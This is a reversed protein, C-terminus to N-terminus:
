RNIIDAYASELAKAEPERGSLRFAESLPVVIMKRWKEREIKLFGWFYPDIQSAPTKDLGAWAEGLWRIIEPYNGDMRLQSAVAYHVEPPLTGMWKFQPGWLTLTNAFAVVSPREPHFKAWALWSKWLGANGPWSRLLSEIKPLVQQASWQWLSPDPKWPADPGFDLVLSNNDIISSDFTFRADDALLIELSPDPMRTLLIAKRAAHAGQHEPYRELMHALRQLTSTGFGDLISALEEATPCKFGSCILKEGRLMAWKLKPDCGTQTRLIASAKADLISWQIERPGWYLLLRSMRLQEWKERWSPEGLLLMRFPEQKVPMPLDPLAPEKLADQVFKETLLRHELLYSLERIKGWGSGSWFHLDELAKRAESVRGLEWLLGVRKAAIITRSHCWAKWTEVSSFDWSNKSPLGDLFALAGEWDKEMSYTSLCALLITAPPGAEGALMEPLERVPNGAIARYSAWRAGSDSTIGERSFIQELEAALMRCVERMKRSDQAGITPLLTSVDGNGKWWNEVKRANGLAEALEAFIRDGQRERKEPNTEALVVSPMEAGLNVMKGQVAQGQALLALMRGRALRAANMVEESWAEGNEPHDKLFAQRKEWRPKLGKEKLLALVSDGSPLDIGNGVEEGDSSILIWRPQSAWGRNAWLENSLPASLPSRALIGEIRLRLLTEDMHMNFRQADELRYVLVWPIGATRADKVVDEFPANAALVMSIMPITAIGMFQHIKVHQFPLM